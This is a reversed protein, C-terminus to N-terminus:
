PNMAWSIGRRGGTKRGRDEEREFRLTDGSRHIQSSPQNFNGLICVHCVTDRVCARRPKNLKQSLSKRDERSKRIAELDGLNLLDPERIISELGQLGMSAPPVIATVQAM